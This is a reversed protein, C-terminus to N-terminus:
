NFHTVYVEYTYMEGIHLQLPLEDPAWAMTGLLLCFRSCLAEEM